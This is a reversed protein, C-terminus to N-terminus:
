RAGAQGAVRVVAHGFHALGHADGIAHATLIGEFLTLLDPTPAPTALAAAVAARETPRPPFAWRRATM